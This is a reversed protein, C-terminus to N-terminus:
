AFWWTSARNRRFLLTSSSTSSSPKWSSLPRRASNRPRAKVSALALHVSSSAAATRLTGGTKLRYVTWRIAKQGRVPSTLTQCPTLYDQNPRQVLCGRRTSMVRLIDHCSLSPWRPSHDHQNQKQKSRAATALSR